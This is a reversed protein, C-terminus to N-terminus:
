LARQPIAAPATVQEIATLTGDVARECSYTGVHATVAAVVDERRTRLLQRIEAMRAALADVQAFPFPFGTRGSQILDRACGVQDSVIAPLGCAMAENAVLGWTERGDSPLVLCDAAAYYEPIVSQNQFGAFTVPIGRADAARALPPQLAGAGVFVGRVKHGMGATRAVADLFDHPRKKEILKGVFLFVTTEADATWSARLAASRGTMRATRASAAFRANDVFHPVRFLREPRVGYHELYERNAQGVYLHADIRGLLWRYPVYKAVSRVVSRPGPLQSDGRVLVPIGLRWCARIAQMYSKLYWGNVICADFAGSALRDRIGPTDCGSYSSVGPAQAFNDLWEYRYGDLLPVDWDFAEGFGAEAQGEPTQRHCFFVRVDVQRALAAFWPAQYQIPHSAVIAIHPM